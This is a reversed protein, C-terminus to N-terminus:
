DEKKNCIMQRDTKAVCDFVNGRKRAFTCIRKEFICYNLTNEKGLLESNLFDSVAENMGCRPCIETKNDARSIAPHENYERGCFPCIKINEM